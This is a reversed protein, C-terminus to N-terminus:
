GITFRASDSQGLNDVWHVTLTEGPAGGRFRFAIYPNRSVARGWDAVMVPRGQHEFALRQIFHPPILAGGADKVFGSDMPHRILSKVSTVGNRSLARLRITSAM